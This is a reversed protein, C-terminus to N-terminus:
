IKDNTDILAFCQPFSLSEYENNLQTLENKRSLHCLFCVQSM